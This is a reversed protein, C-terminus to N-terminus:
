TESPLSLVYMYPSPNLARLLRYVDFADAQVPFTFRQALQVQYIDGALIHQKAREVAAFFQEQSLRGTPPQDLPRDAPELQRLASVHALRHALADIRGIAEDYRSEVSGAGPRVHSVLKLRHQVHDFCALTDTVLFVADPVQLPNADPIPLRELYRAAEYAFDGVAGGCFGEPLGEAPEARFGQLYTELAKFPDAGPLERQGQGDQVTARGGAITIIAMPDAAVFSYRGLHEGGEVSELLFAPGDTSLAAFATVPTLADSLMDRFIPVMPARQARDRVQEVTLSVSM